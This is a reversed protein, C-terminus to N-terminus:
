RGSPLFVASNYISSLAASLLRCPPQAADSFFFTKLGLEDINDKSVIRSKNPYNFERTYKEINNYKSIQRSYTAVVEDNIDKTLNYLWLEDTIVVDQTVFVVIDANSELAEKERVLSHSFESRKILTYPINANDMIEKTNDSSETLVYRIKNLLVNKQMLFSKNLDIIYKSANYLPCIIDIKM